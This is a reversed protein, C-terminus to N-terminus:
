EDRGKLDTNQGVRAIDKFWLWSHKRNLESLAWAMLYAVGYIFVFATLFVPLGNKRYDLFFYPILESPLHGLEILMLITVAYYTIFWTGYWRQSPKLKGIPSDNIVFSTLGLIPVVVHMVFSDYRDFMPLHESFVPLQSVIVVIFVVAEALASSLRTYYVWTRTLETNRIMEVLNVVICAGAGLTTFLTADVTMWRFITISPELTLGYLFSTVGLIFIVISLGLNVRKKQCYRRQLAEAVGDINVESM